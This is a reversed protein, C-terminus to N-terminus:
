IRLRSDGVYRSWVVTLTVMNNGYMLNPTFGAEATDALIWRRSIPQAFNLYLLRDQKARSFDLHIALHPLYQRRVIHFIHRDIRESCYKVPYKQNISRDRLPYCMNKKKKEKM